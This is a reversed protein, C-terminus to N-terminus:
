NESDTQPYFWLCYQWQCDNCKESRERCGNELCEFPPISKIRKASAKNDNSKKSNM